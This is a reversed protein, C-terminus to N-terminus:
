RAKDAPAPLQDVANRQRRDSLGAVSAGILVLILGGIALRRFQDEVGSETTWGCAHLTSFLDTCTTPPKLATTSKSANVAALYDAVQRDFLQKASSAIASPVASPITPPSPAGPASAASSSPGIFAAPVFAVGIALCLVAARLAWARTSVVTNTWDILNISRALQTDAYSTGPEYAGVSASSGRLFALYAVSLAVALGLFLAAYVGRVPLTRSTTSFVLGLLGTYAAILAAPRPRSSSRPIARM